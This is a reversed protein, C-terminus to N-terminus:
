EHSCHMDHGDANCKFRCQQCLQKSIHDFGVWHKRRCFQIRTRPVKKASSSNLMFAEQLDYYPAHTVMLTKQPDYYLVHTVMLTKEEGSVKDPSTFAEASNNKHQTNLMTVKVIIDDDDRIEKNCM